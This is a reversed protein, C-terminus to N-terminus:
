LFEVSTSTEQGLGTVFSGNSVKGLQEGNLYPLTELNWTVMALPIDFNTM